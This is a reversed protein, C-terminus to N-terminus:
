TAQVVTLNRQFTKKHETVRQKMQLYRCLVTLYSNDSSIQLTRLPFNGILTALYYLKSEKKVHRKRQGTLKKKVRALCCKEFHKM